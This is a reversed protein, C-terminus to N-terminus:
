HLLILTVKQEYIYTFYLLFQVLIPIEVDTLFVWFRIGTANPNSQIPPQNPYTPKPKIAKSQLNAAM